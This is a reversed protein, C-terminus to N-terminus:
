QENRSKFQKFLKDAKEEWATKRNDVEFEIELIKYYEKCHTCQNKCKSEDEIQRQCYKFETKM